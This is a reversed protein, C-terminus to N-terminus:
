GISVRLETAEKDSNISNQKSTYTGHPISVSLFTLNVCCKGGMKYFLYVLM